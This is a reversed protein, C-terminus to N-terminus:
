ISSGVLAVIYVKKLPYKWSIPVGAKRLMKTLFVGYAEPKYVAILGSNMLVFKNVVRYLEKVVSGQWYLVNNLQRYSWNPHKNKMKKRHGELDFTVGVIFSEKTLDLIENINRNGMPCGERKNFNPCGNKKNYYPYGCWEKVREDWVVGTKVVFSDM